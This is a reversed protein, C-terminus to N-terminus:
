LVATIASWLKVNRSYPNEVKSRKQEQLRSRSGIVKICSSSEYVMHAFILKGSFWQCFEVSFVVSLHCKSSM